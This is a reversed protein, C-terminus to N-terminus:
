KHNLIEIFNEMMRATAGWIVDGNYEFAPTQYTFDEKEVIYTRNELNNTVLSDWPVKILRKVEEKSIKFDYSSPIFGVVPHVIFGSELTFIDDIKGLIEVDERLLGIEEETERLATAEISPDDDDAAGGPFSIQGKHHELTDTRKTFLVKNVGDEILLPILVGAHRYHPPPDHILNPERSNLTQRILNLLEKQDHM